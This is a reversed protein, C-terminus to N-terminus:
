KASFSCVGWYIPSIREVTSQFLVALPVEILHTFVKMAPQGFPASRSRRPCIAARHDQGEESSFFHARFIHAKFHCLRLFIGNSQPLM